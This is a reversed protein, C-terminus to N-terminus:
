NVTQRNDKIERLEKQMTENQKKLQSLEEILQKQHDPKGSNGSNGKMMMYMLPIMMLPCMLYALWSWDM